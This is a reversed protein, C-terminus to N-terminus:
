SVWTKPVMPVFIVPGLEEVDAGLGRRHLRLLRQRKGQEGVPAVLVGGDVLQHVLAAPVERPAATLVVRDFPAAEPWGEYGDGVRTRVNGCGLEDLLARARAALEPVVEVSYVVRALRSLIATQYGSGTGIELVRERGSLDLAASMLAVSSPQSITQGFGIPALEDAYAEDLDAEPVFAHRPTEAIARLVRRDSVSRAVATVLARRLRKAEEDDVIAM